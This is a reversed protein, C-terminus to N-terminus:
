RSEEERLLVGHVKIPAENLFPELALDLVDIHKGNRRLELLAFQLVDPIANDECSPIGFSQSAQVRL